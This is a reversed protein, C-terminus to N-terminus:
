LRFIQSLAFDQKHAIADATYEWYPVTVTSDIAQFSQELELTFTMHHMFFGARCGAAHLLSGGRRAGRGCVSASRM